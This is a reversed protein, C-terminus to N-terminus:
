AFELQQYVGPLKRRVFDLHHIHYGAAVSAIMMTKFGRSTRVISVPVPVSLTLFPHCVVPALRGDFMRGFRDVLEWRVDPMHQLATLQFFSVPEIVAQKIGQSDVPATTLVIFDGETLAIRLRSRKKPKIPGKGPGRPEPLPMAAVHHLTM